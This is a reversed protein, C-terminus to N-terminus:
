IAPGQSKRGFNQYITGLLAGSQAFIAWGSIVPVRRGGMAFEIIKQRNQIVFGDAFVVGARSAAVFLHKARVLLDRVRAPAVFLPLRCRPAIGRAGALNALGTAPDPAAPRIIRDM